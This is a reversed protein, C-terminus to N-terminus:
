PGAKSCVHKSFDRNFIGLPKEGDTIRYIPKNCQNCNEHFRTMGM